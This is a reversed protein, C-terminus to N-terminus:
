PILLATASRSAQRSASSLAGYRGKADWAGHVWRASETLSAGVTQFRSTLAAGPGSSGQCPCALGHGGASAIALLTAAATATRM